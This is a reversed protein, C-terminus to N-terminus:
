AGLRVGHLDAERAVYGRRRKAGDWDQRRIVVLDFNASHIAQEVLVALEVMMRYRDETEAVVLFDFDSDEAARGAARSGFLIVEADPVHRKIAAAAREAIERDEATLGSAVDSSTM